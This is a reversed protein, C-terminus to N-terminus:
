KSLASQINHSLQKMPPASRLRSPLKTFAQSAALFASRADKPMKFEQYIMGEEFQLKATLNPHLKGLNRFIKRAGAVDGKGLVFRAKMQHLPVALPHKSLGAALFTTTALNDGTLFAAHIACEFDAVTIEASKNLFLGWETVADKAPSLLARERYASPAPALNETQSILKFYRGLAEKAAETQNQDREFRALALLANPYFPEIRTAELLDSRAAEDDLHSQHLRARLLWHLPNQPEQEILSSARLIEEHMLGHSWGLSTM